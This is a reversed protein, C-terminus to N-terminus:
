QKNPMELTSWLKGGSKLRAQNDDIFYGQEKLHSRLTTTSTHINFSKCNNVTCVHRVKGELKQKEFCEWVSSKKRKRETKMKRRKSLWFNTSPSCDVFSSPFQTFNSNSKIIIKFITQHLVKWISFRSKGPANKFELMKLIEFLKVFTQIKFLSYKM